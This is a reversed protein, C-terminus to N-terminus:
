NIFIILSFSQHLCMVNIESKWMYVCAHAHASVPISVCVCM